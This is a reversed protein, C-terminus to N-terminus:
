PKLALALGIKASKGIAGTDVEGVLSFRTRPTWDHQILATARGFNNVRAKVLTLPDLAHQTGITLKNENSSFRHSFEAAVATNTLPNVAQYYSAVLTDGKDNRCKDVLFM